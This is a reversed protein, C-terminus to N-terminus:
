EPQFGIMAMVAFTGIIAVPVAISRFLQRDGIRCFCWCWSPSWCSPMACPKSYKTSRNTSSRRRTTSSRTTSARASVPEEFGGDQQAGAQRYGACELRAVSLDVAGGVAPRRAPLNSRLGPRGTRDAAVDRVRVLNGGADSKLIMDAFQEPDALRGMTTITYQFTQGNNVPPQGIQGAAVQTNQQEIARVVDNASLNRSPWKRRISGSGCATIASASTPSTASMKWDRWNM